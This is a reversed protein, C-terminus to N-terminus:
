SAGVRYYEGYGMAKVSEAVFPGLLRMGTFVVCVGARTKKGEGLFFCAAEGPCTATPPAQHGINGAAQHHISSICFPPSIFSPVLSTAYTAVVVLRNWM